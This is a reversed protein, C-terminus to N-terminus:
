AAEAMVLVVADVDLTGGGGVIGSINLFVAVVVEDGVVGDNDIRTAVEEFM